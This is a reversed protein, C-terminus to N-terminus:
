NEETKRNINLSELEKAVKLIAATLPALGERLGYILERETM